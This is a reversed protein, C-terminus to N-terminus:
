TGACDNIVSVATKISNDDLALMNVRAAALELAGNWAMEMAEEPYNYLDINPEESEYWDKFNM